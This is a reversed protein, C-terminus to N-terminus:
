FFQELDPPQVPDTEQEILAPDYPAIYYGYGDKCTGGCNHGEVYRDFEVGINDGVYCITGTDGAHTDGWNQVYCDRLYVRDGVNFM